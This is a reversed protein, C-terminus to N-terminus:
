NEEVVAYLLCSIKKKGDWFQERWVQRVRNEGGRVYVLFCLSLLSTPWCMSPLTGTHVHPKPVSIIAQQREKSVDATVYVTVQM